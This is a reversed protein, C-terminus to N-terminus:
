KLNDIESALNSGKDTAIRELVQIREEMATFKEMFPAMDKRSYYGDEGDRGLDQMLNGLMGKSLKQDPRNLYSKILGGGVGIAVILVIMEFVQM